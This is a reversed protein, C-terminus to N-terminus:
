KSSGKRINEKYKAMSKRYERIAPIKFDDWTFLSISSSSHKKRIISVQLELIENTINENRITDRCKTISKGTNIIDDFLIIPKNKVLGEIIHRTGYQKRTKRVSFTNINIGYKRATYAIALILPTSGTELGAAQFNNHGIKEEILYLLSESAKQAFILDSFLPTRTKFMRAIPTKGDTKTMGKDIVVGCDMLVTKCYAINQLHLNKSIIM